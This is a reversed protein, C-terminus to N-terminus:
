WWWSVGAPNETEIAEAASAGVAEPLNVFLNIGLKEELARVSMVSPHTKTVTQGALAKDHNLLVACGRYGGNAANSKSYALVAKYYSVPVKITKGDVDRATETSGKVVCGTVVYLTDCRSAWGRVTGELRAWIEGNFNYEQPTMNTGYFTAENAARNLRDASPIQHGRTWGGRFTSTVTPQKSAPLLPDLGWAESRNGSGRLATNLPYAVWHAVLAKEDWYFSYNRLTKSGVTMDHTYFYLGDDDRTEPLEMWRRKTSSGGDVEPQPDESPANQRLTAVAKRDGCSLTISASRAKDDPNAEYSLSVAANDDSGSAPTFRVWSAESSLTWSGTAQVEIFQSGKGSGVQTKSLKLVPAPTVPVEKECSVTGLSLVTLLATGLFRFISKSANM